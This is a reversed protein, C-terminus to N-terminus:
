ENTIQSSADQDLRVFWGGVDGDLHLRGYSPM